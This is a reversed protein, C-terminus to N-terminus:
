CYFHLLRKGGEEQLFMKRCEFVIFMLMFNSSYLYFLNLPKHDLKSVCAAYIVGNESKKEEWLWKERTYCVSATLWACQSCLFSCHCYFVLRASSFMHHFCVEMTKESMFVLAHSRLKCLLYMKNWFLFLKWTNMFTVVPNRNM